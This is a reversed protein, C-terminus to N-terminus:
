KEGRIDRLINKGKLRLLEQRGFYKMVNSTRGGQSINYLYQAVADTREELKESTERRKKAQIKETEEIVEDIIRRNRDADFDADAHKPVYKYDKRDIKM